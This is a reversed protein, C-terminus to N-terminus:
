RCWGAPSTSRRWCAGAGCRNRRRARRRCRWPPSRSSACFIELGAYPAGPAGRAKAALAALATTALWALVAGVMAPSLRVRSSSPDAWILLQAAVGVAGALYLLALKPGAFVSHLNPLYFLAVAVTAVCASAPGLAAAFRPAIEGDTPSASAEAM